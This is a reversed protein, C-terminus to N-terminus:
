KLRERDGGFFLRGQKRVGALGAAAGRRQRGNPLVLGVEVGPENFERLIDGGGLRADDILRAELLERRGHELIAAAAVLEVLGLAASVQARAPIFRTARM